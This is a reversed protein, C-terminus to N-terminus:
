CLTQCFYTTMKEKRLFRTGMRGREEKKERNIERKREEKQTRSGIRLMVSELLIVWIGFLLLLGSNSWSQGRAAYFIFKIVSEGSYQHALWMLDNKLNCGLVANQIRKKIILLIGNGRHSEQGFYYIYRDDSNFKGMGM